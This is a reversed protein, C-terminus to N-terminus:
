ARRARVHWFPMRESFVIEVFGAKRLMEEIEGRTFRKELSTGFRDLADNRMIYFSKDVYYSLPLKEYVALGMWRLARALFVLPLYVSWALIEAAIRRFTISRHSIFRRLADVVRFLMRYAWSRNDLAYYLYLLVYGGKKVKRYLQALAGETDPIHHLVGLSIALDFSEDPFPINHLSACTLRVNSVGTLLTKAASLAEFSADIAEIWKVRSAMYLSFRGSGCGADLVVWDARWIDKMIDFYEEGLKEIENSSFSHFAQWEKGFSKVVDESAGHVPFVAIGNIVQAPQSEYSLPEM